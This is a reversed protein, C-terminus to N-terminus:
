YTFEVTFMFALRQHETTKPGIIGTIPVVNAFCSSSPNDSIYQIIEYAKNTAELKGGDKDAQNQPTVYWFDIFSNRSIVGPRGGGDANISLFSSRAEDAGEDWVGACPKIDGLVPALYEAVKTIVNM